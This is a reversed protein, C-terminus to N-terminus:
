PNVSNLKCSLFHLLAGGIPGGEDSGAFYANKRNLNLVYLLPRVQTSGVFGFLAVQGTTKKRM